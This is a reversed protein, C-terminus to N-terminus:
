AVAPKKMKNKYENVVSEHASLVEKYKSEFSNFANNKATNINKEIASLNNEIGTKLSPLVTSLAKYADDVAKEASTLANELVILAENAATKAQTLATEALSLAQIATTLLAQKEAIFNQDQSEAIAKKLEVIELKKAYLASLAKQYAGDENVFHTVYADSLTKRASNLADLAASYTGALVKEFSDLGNILEKIKENEALKVEYARVHYYADKVAKGVLDKADKRVENIKAIVQEETLENIEEDSLLPDVESLIKRLETIAAKEFQSVTATINLDTFTKELKSKVQNYLKQAEETNGSVTIEVKNDSLFADGKVLYGSQTSIQVFLNVADEASKGVFAEGSIILEGEENLGTVSLVKDNKDLLFEVEPNISATLRKTATADGGCGVLSLCGLSLMIVSLIAGLIKKM